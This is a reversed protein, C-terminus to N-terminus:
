STLDDVKKELETIKKRYDAITDKADDAADAALSQTGFAKLWRSAYGFGCSASEPALILGLEAPGPEGSVQPSSVIM